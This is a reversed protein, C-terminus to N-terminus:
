ISTCFFVLFRFTFYPSVTNLSGFLGAKSLIVTHEECQFSQTNRFMNCTFNQYCRFTYNRFDTNGTNATKLLSLPIPMKSFSVKVSLAITDLEDCAVTTSLHRYM